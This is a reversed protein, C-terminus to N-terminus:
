FYSVPLNEKGEVQTKEIETEKHFPSYITGLFDTRGKEVMLLPTEIGV